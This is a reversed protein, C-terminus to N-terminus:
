VRHKRPLGTVITVTTSIHNNGHVRVCVCVCKLSCIDINGSTKVQAKTDLKFDAREEVQSFSFHFFKSMLTCKSALRIEWAFQACVCVWARVCVGGRKGKVRFVFLCFSCKGRHREMFESPLISIGDCNRTKKELCAGPPTPPLSLSVYMSM